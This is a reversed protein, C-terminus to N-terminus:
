KAEPFLEPNAGGTRFILNGSVKGTRYSNWAKVVLALQHRSDYTNYWGSSKGAAGKGRSKSGRLVQSVLQNVADGPPTKMSLEEWFGAADAEDIRSLIIWALSLVTSSLPVKTRVRDAHKIGDRVAEERGDSKLYGDLQIVTPSMRGRWTKIDRFTGHEYHWLAKLVSSVQAANPVSQIRLHDTFSRSRGTDQVLQEDDEAGEMVWFPLAVYGDIVPYAPYVETFPRGDPAIGDAKIDAIVVALMRHQANTMLGYRNFVVSDGTLRHEGRTFAKSLEIARERSLRRNLDSNALYETAVVPTVWAKRSTPEPFVVERVRVAAGGSVEAETGM